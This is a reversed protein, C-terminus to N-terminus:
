NASSPSLQRRLMAMITDVEPPTLRGHGQLFTALDRGSYRGVIAGDRELLGLRALDSAREHCVICKQQFLFGTKLMAEFQKVLMDAQVKDLAQRPHRALFDALPTDSGKLVVRGDRFDLTEKVLERAHPQHCSACRQEYLQHPDVGQAIAPMAFLVTTTCIAIASIASIASTLLRQRAITHAHRPMILSRM